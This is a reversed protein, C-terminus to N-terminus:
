IVASTRQALTRNVWHWSLSHWRAQFTSECCSSLFLLPKLARQSGVCMNGANNTQSGALENKRYKGKGINMTSINPFTKNYKQLAQWLQQLVFWCHGRMLTSDHSVFCILEHGSREQAMASAKTCSFCVGSSQLQGSTMSYNLTRRHQLSTCSGSGEQKEQSIPIAWLGSCQLWRCTM